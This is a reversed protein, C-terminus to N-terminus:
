PWNGVYLFIAHRQGSKPDIFDYEDCVPFEGKRKRGCEVLARMQFDWAEPVNVSLWHKQLSVRFERDANTLKRGPITIVVPDDSTARASSFAFTPPDPVGHETVQFAEFAPRPSKDQAGVSASTCLLIAAWGWSAKRM